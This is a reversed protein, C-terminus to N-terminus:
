RRGQTQDNTWPDERKDQTTMYREERRAVLQIQVMAKEKWLFM